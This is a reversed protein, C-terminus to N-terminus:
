KKQAPQAGNVTGMIGATKPNEMLAAAIKPNTLMFAIQPNALSIQQIKEPDNLIAQAAPSDIITDIMKSSGIAELVKENNLVKQVVPNNIFTNVKSSKTMFEMLAKEDNLLPKVTARNTFGDILTKSNMMMGVFAPQKEMIMGVMDTIAGRTRSIIDMRKEQDVSLKSYGRNSGAAQGSGGGGSKAARNADESASSGGGSGTGGGIGVPRDAESGGYSILGVSSEPQKVPTELTGPEQPTEVSRRVEMQTHFANRQSESLELDSSNLKRVWLALPYALLVFLPLLFMWIPLSRKEQPSSPAEQEENTEQEEPKENAM